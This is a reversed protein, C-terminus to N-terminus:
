LVKSLREIVDETKHTICPPLAKDIRCDQGVTSVVEHYCGAFECPNQIVSINSLDAYRYEPNVSGFFLVSKIGLAVAIQAPGSDLGVFLDASGILYILMNMSAANIRTGIRHIGHGVQIAEYGKSRVFGEVQKWDVGHVNRHAMATDDIHFVVARDFLKRGTVDIVLKPNRIAGDTIGAHEYYSKLALQKPKVEYAMDMNIRRADTLDKFNLIHYIPFYHGRFLHYPDVPCDLIVHHGTRHFHELVPELMLIDGMAGARQIIVRPKYPQHFDNHFGFTPQQPENLEFSFRHALEDPAYTIGYNSELYPRYLRCIAEDEPHIFEIFSDGALIRHLKASRLSFGGNGMNRGDVYTWPAGIYDYLMFADDWAKADLVYGDAQIVLLHTTNIHHALEKTLFRSYEAKSKITPIKVIDVGEPVTPEIDTFFLTRGPKIQELTRTLAHIAKAYNVTDVCVVTIDPLHLRM